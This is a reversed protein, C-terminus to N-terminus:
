PYNTTIYNVIDQVVATEEEASKEGTANGWAVYFDAYANRLAQGDVSSNAELAALRANVEDLLVQVDPDVAM